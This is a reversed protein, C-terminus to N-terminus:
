NLANFIEMGNQWSELDKDTAFDLEDKGDEGKVLKFKITPSTYTWFKDGAPDVWIVKYINDEEPVIKFPTHKFTKECLDNLSSIVREDKAMKNLDDKFVNFLIMAIVGLVGLVSGIASMIKKRRSVAPAVPAAPATEAAKAVPCGCQPCAAAADSIDKGCEKCQIMSM